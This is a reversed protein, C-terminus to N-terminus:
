LNEQDETAALAEHMDALFSPARDGQSPIISFGVVEWAFFMLVVASDRCHKKKFSYSLVNM